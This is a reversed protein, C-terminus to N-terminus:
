FHHSREMFYIPYTGMFKRNMPKKLYFRNEFCEFFKPHTLLQLYRIYFLFTM